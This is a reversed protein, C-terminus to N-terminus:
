GNEDENLKVTFRRSPASVETHAEILDVPAKLEEAVAKWNVTRRGAVSSWLVRGGPWELGKDNGILEEVRNKLADHAEEASSYKARAEAYLNLLEAERAEAQRVFQGAQPYLHKLLRDSAVTADLPPPVHALVHNEWFASLRQMIERELALDRALAYEREKQGGVLADLFEIDYGGCAM